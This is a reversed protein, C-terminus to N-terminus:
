KGVLKEFFQQQQRHLDVINAEITTTFKEREGNLKELSAKANRVAEHDDPVKNAAM